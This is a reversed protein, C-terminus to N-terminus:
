RHAQAPELRPARRAGAAFAVDVKAEGALGDLRPSTPSIRAPLVRGYGDYGFHRRIPDDWPPFVDPRLAFLAKAAGTPGYTVRVTGSKTSRESAVSAQLEAYAAAAVDLDLDELATLRIGHEPLQHLWTDAWRVLSESAIGAHHAKAFQRCGWSNLWRFLAERHAPLRVDFM